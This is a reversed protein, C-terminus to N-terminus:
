ISEHTNCLSNCAFVNQLGLVFKNVCMTHTEVSNPIYLTLLKIKM